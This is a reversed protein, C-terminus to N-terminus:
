FNIYIKYLFLSNPKWLSNECNLNQLFFYYFSSGINIKFPVLLAVNNNKSIDWFKIREYRLIWVHYGLDSRSIINVLRFYMYIHLNIIQFISSKQSCTYNNDSEALKDLFTQPVNFILSFVSLLLSFITLFNNMISFAKVNIYPLGDCIGNACSVRPLRFLESFWRILAM